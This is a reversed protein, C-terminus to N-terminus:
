EEIEELEEELRTSEVDLTDIILEQAAEKERLMALESKFAQAQSAIDGYDANEIIFDLTYNAQFDDKVGAYNKAMLLLSKWRWQPYTPLNDIMWFIRENSAEFKGQRFEFSALHYNAEAQAEGRVEEAVQTYYMKADASDKMSLAGRAANLLAESRWETPLSEDQLLSEAYQFTTPIDDLAKACRMLGLRARRGEDANGVLGVVQQFYYFAKDYNQEAYYISALREVVQKRFSLEGSSAVFEYADKAIADDGKSFACDAMYYNAPVRFIGDPFKILYEQMGKIAGECDGLSYRDYAGNYLTSDLAGQEINAGAITQVWDVYDSLRDMESYQIKVLGLAEQSESTNPYEEVVSKFSALAKEGNNQTRYILGLAIKANKIFRSKPYDDIFSTFVKEAKGNEGLKMYTEGLEFYADTAYVSNPFEKVLAELAKAKWDQNDVLGYCLARQFYAYDADPMVHSLYANYYKIANNYQGTMFYSDALRLEADIFLRSGDRARTLFLRYTTAANTYDEKSFYTYAKNYLSRKYESLMASGPTEEFADLEKLALNYDKHRYHIEALWYHALATYVNNIPYELSKEFISQAAPYQIANFHQVGRFYAVKQYAGQMTPQELGAASIAKLAREYDKSNLYLSALYENAEARYKSTPYKKLFSQFIDLPQEFPTSSDYALKAYNFYADERISENSGSESATFFATQAETKKDIKLYCDALHYYASQGLDDGRGHIKNFAQIAEEYRGTKYLVFGLKYHDEQNLKGGLSQHKELYNASEKWNKKQYYGEGILKAVEAARSEVAQALLSEGVRLLEDIDGTKYYIQSLYYPVVGGFKEDGVLEKFQAVATSYQEAEYAIHGYYYKHHNQYEGKYSTGQFFLNRAQEVENAMMYSYALKFYYESKFSSPVDQADIASLWQVVKKYRRNNFYYNAASVHAEQWRPSLPYTEAFYTLFYESNENMLYLACMARYYSSEEKFFSQLPLDSELLEDFGVRAAAYLGEDFLAVSENFTAEHGHELASEQANATTMFAVSILLLFFTRM